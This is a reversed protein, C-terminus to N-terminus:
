DLPPKRIKVPWEYGKDNENSNKDKLTTKHFCNIPALLAFFANLVSGFFYVEGESQFRSKDVLVTTRFGHVPIGRFVDRETRTKISVIRDLLNKLRDSENDDHAAAFNYVDLIQRLAKVDLSNDELSCHNFTLNSLLRWDLRSDLPPMIPRTVRTINKYTALGHPSDDTPHAIDGPKILDPLGHNICLVELSVTEALANDMLLASFRIYTDLRDDRLRRNLQYARHKAEPRGGVRSAYPAFEVGGPGKVSVVSHVIYDGEAGGAPDPRVPYEMKKHDIDFSRGRCPHLNIVPTCFLRFSSKDVPPIVVASDKMDIVLSFADIGEPIKGIGQIDIFMFKEPFAFYEQLVRHGPFVTLPYPLAAENFGAPVIKAQELAVQRRGASEEHRLSMSVPKACLGRYLAFSDLLTESHLFLRLSDIHLHNANNLVRFDLRLVGGDPESQADQLVLPYLDVPYCSRFRCRKGNKDISAVEAAESLGKDASWGAIRTKARVTRGPTFELISMAPVPQLCNPWLTSLLSQTLESYEDDLKQRVAGTLFAFGQILREVDPDKGPQGIWLFQNSLSQHEERYAKGLNVLYDMENQYYQRNAVNNM